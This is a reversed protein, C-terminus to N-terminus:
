LFTLTTPSDLQDYPVPRYTLHMYQRPHNHVGSRLNAGSRRRVAHETGDYNGRAALTVPVYLLLIKGFLYPQFTNKNAHSQSRSM